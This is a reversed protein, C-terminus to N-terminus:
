DQEQEQHQSLGLIGGEVKPRGGVWRCRGSSCHCNAGETASEGAGEAEEVEVSAEPYSALHAPQHVPSALQGATAMSEVDVLLTGQSVPALISSAVEVRTAVVM